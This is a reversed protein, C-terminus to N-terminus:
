LTVSTIEEHEMKNCKEIATGDSADSSFCYGCVVTRVVAYNCQYVM